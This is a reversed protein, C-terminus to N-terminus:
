YCQASNTKCNKSNSYLFEAFAHTDPPNGGTPHTYFQRQSNQREFVDEVDQFLGDNFNKEIEEKVEDYDCPPPPLEKGYETVLRNAFPNNKTSRRCDRTSLGAINGRGTYVLTITGIAALGLLITKFSRTYLFLALTVYIILRVLANLHESTSQTKVPFFELPRRGLVFIDQYWIKDSIIM